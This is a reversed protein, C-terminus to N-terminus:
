DAKGDKGSKRPPLSRETVLEEMHRLCRSILQRGRQKFYPCQRCDFRDCLLKRLIQDRAIREVPEDAKNTADPPM